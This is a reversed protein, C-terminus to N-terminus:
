VKEEMEKESRKVKSRMADEMLNGAMEKIEKLGEEARDVRINM